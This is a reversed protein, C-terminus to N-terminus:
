PLLDRDAVRDLPNRLLGPEALIELTSVCLQYVRAEALGLSRAIVSESEGNQWRYMIEARRHDIQM